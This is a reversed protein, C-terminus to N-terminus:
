LNLFEHSNAIQPATQPDCVASWRLYPASQHNIPELQKLVAPFLPPVSPDCDSLLNLSFRPVSDNKLLSDSFPLLSLLVTLPFQLLRLLM